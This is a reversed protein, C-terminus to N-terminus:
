KNATRKHHRTVEEKSLGMFRAANDYFIGAKEEITLFDYGNVREVAMGIAEPWFMQDTGFMVRDLVGWQKAKRLFGGLLEEGGQWTLVGIDAYVQPYLAMMYLTYDRFPGAAGAHM